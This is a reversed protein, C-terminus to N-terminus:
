KSFIYGICVSAYTTLNEETFVISYLPQIMFKRKYSLEVGLQVGPNTESYDKLTVTRTLSGGLPNHYIGKASIDSKDLIFLGGGIQFSLRIDQDDDTTSTAIQISPVIEIISFSGSTSEINYDLSSEGGGLKLIEKGIPSMQNYAIRGGFSIINQTSYFLNAGVSFGMNWLDGDDGFAQSIGANPIFSLNQANGHNVSFLLICLSVGTIISQRKMKGEKFTKHFDQPLEAFLYRVATVM